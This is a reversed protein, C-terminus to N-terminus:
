FVNVCNAGIIDLYNNFYVHVFLPIVSYCVRLKWWLLLPKSSFFIPDPLHHLVHFMERSRAMKTKARRGLSRAKPLLAHLKQPCQSMSSHKNRLPPSRCEWTARKMMWHHVASLFHLDTRRYAPPFREKRRQTKQADPCRAFLPAFPQFVLVFSALQNSLQPGLQHTSVLM